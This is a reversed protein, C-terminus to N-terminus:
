CLYYDYKIFETKFLKLLIMNSYIMNSSELILSSRKINYQENQKVGQACDELIKRLIMNELAMKFVMSLFGYTCYVM